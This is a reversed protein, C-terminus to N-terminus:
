YKALYKEGSGNGSSYFALVESAFNQELRQKYSEIKSIYNLTVQPTKNDQVKNRGANYMALGAIENGAAEMCYKLHSMGYHASVKPDYFDEESLNPFTYSNLQFLGRDISGNVNTHKANVKYMSESYALAFALSPQVGFQSAANLIAIAIDKDGTVQSYFWEVAARSQPMEYLVLAANSDEEVPFEIEGGVYTEVAFDSLQGIEEEAIIDKEQAVEDATEEVAPAAAKERSLAVVNTKSDEPLRIFVFACVAGFLLTVAITSWLLKILHMREVDM